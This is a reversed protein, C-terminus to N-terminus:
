NKKPPAPTPFCDIVQTAHWACPLFPPQAPRSQRPAPSSFAAPKCLNREKTAIPVYALVQLNSNISGYRGERWFAQFSNALLCPITWKWAQPLSPALSMGGRIYMVFCWNFCRIWGRATGLADWAKFVDQPSMAHM